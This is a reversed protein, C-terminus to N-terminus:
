VASIALFSTYLKGAFTSSSRQVPQPKHSSIHGATKSSPSSPILWTMPSQSSFRSQQWSAASLQGTPAIIMSYRNKPIKILKEQRNKAQKLNTLSVAL